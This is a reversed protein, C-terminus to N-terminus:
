AFPIFAFHQGTTKIKDDQFSFKMGPLSRSTSLTEVRVHFKITKNQTSLTGDSTSNYRVVRRISATPVDTAIKQAVSAM